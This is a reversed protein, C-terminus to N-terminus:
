APVAPPVAQCVVNRAQNPLGYFSFLLRLGDGTSPHQSDKGHWFMEAGSFAMLSLFQLCLAGGARGFIVLDGSRHLRLGSKGLREAIM